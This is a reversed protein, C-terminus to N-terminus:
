SEGDGTVGSLGGDSILGSLGGGEARRLSIGDEYTSCRPDADDASQSSALRSGKGSGFLPEVGRAEV